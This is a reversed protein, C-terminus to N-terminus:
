RAIREVQRRLAALYRGDVDRASSPDGGLGHVSRLVAVFRRTLERRDDARWVLTLPPAPVSPVLPVYAVNSRGAIRAARPVLGVGAGTAVMGILTHIGQLRGVVQPEFGAARCVMHWYRPAREELPTLIFPEDRLRALMVRARDALPHSHHVVLDVRDTLLPLACLDDRPGNLALPLRGIAVDVLGQRLANVADTSLVFEVPSVRIEPWRRRVEALVPTLVVDLASNIFGITLNGTEGREIRRAEELATAASALAARAHEAFAEGAPTLEVGRRSRVLLQAGVEAELVQIQQSLPPQKIGLSQAARGFHGHEVVALLYRLHRLEM